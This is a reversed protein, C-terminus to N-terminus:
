SARPLGLSAVLGGEETSELKLEGGHAKAVRAAIALGLGTGQTGGRADDGRAFPEVLRAREQASLGPGHDRVSIICHAATYSTEVTIPDKGYKVANAVLNAIARHLAVPKAKISVSPAHQTRIGKHDQAELVADVVSAPLVEAFPEQDLGRAFDLFQAFMADMTEIQRVITAKLDAGAVDTTLMEVALRIKSLPTRLDHSIGALMLNREREATALRETMRNFSEGLERIEKPGAVPVAEPATRLSVRQAAATLARLSSSFRRQIVLGAVIAVFLSFGSALIVAWEPRLQAPPKTSMWVRKGALTMAIWIRGEAGRQWEFHKNESLKAALESMFFSELLSPSRMGAPWDTLETHIQLYPSTNLRELFATQDGPPLREMTEAIASVSQAMLGAVRRAQPELVFVFFLLLTMLQAVTLLGILALAGRAAVSDFRPLMRKRNQSM